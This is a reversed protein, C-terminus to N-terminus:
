EALERIKDVPVRYTTAGTLPAAGIKHYLSIAKTNWDFCLWELRTCGLELAERAVYRIMEQGIGTRRYGEEIYLADIYIGKEGRLAASNNFYYMFAVTKGEYIGFIGRGAGSELLNHMKEATVTTTAEVQMFKGLKKIYSAAESADELAAKRIQFNMKEM